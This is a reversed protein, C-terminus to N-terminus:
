ISADTLAKDYHDVGTNMEYFVYAICIDYSIPFCCLNDTRVTIRVTGTYPRDISNITM